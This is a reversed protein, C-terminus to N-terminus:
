TSFFFLFSITTKSNSSQQPFLNVASYDKSLSLFFFTVDHWTRLTKSSSSFFSFAKKWRRRLARLVSYLTDRIQILTALYNHKFWNQSKRIECLKKLCNHYKYFYARAWFWVGKQLNLKDFDTFHDTATFKMLLNHVAINKL